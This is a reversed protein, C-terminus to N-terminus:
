EAYPDYNMVDVVEWDTATIDDGDFTIYTAYEDAFDYVIYQNRFNLEAENRLLMIKMDSPTSQMKLIYNTGISAPIQKYVVIDPRYSTRRVVKGNELEKLIEGFTM